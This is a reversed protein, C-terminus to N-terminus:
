RCILTARCTAHIYSACSSSVRTHTHTKAIVPASRTRARTLLALTRAKYRLYSILMRERVEGGIRQDLLFLMIGYLYVAEGLLQQGDQNMLVGQMMM